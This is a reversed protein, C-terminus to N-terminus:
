PRPQESAGLLFRGLADSADSVTRSHHSCILNLSQDAGPAAFHAATYGCLLVFPHRAGLANWLTELRAAADYNGDRVLVEVMEGYIRLGHPASAALRSVLSGVSQDFLQQNPQGRRMFRSLLEDADVFILDGRRIAEAHPRGMRDLEDAIATWHERTAAVVLRQGNDYGVSLFDAVSRVLSDDTDFLQLIHECTDAKGRVGATRTGPVAKLRGHDARM